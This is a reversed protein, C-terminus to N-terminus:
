ITHIFVSSPKLYPLFFTLSARYCATSVWLTALCQPEWMKLVILESIASFSDDKSAPQGEVGRFDRTLPHASGLAM